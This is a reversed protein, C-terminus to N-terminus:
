LSNALHLLLNLTSMQFSATRSISREKNLDSSRLYGSKGSMRAARVAALQLAPSRPSASLLQLRTSSGLHSRRSELITSTFTSLYRCAGQFRVLPSIAMIHLYPSGLHSSLHRRHGGWIRASRSFKRLMRADEGM